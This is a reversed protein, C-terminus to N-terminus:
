LVPEGRLEADINKILEDADALAFRMTDTFPEGGNQFTRPYMEWYPDTGGNFFGLQSYFDCYVSVYKGNHEVMFRMMAGGFPPIIRVDWEPKFHLAPIPADRVALYVESIKLFAEDPYKIERWNM